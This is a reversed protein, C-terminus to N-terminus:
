ASPFGRAIKKGASWAMQITSISALFFEGGLWEGDNELIKKMEAEGALASKSSPYPKEGDLDNSHLAAWSFIGAPLAANLTDRRSLPSVSFGIKVIYKGGAPRGLFAEPDGNLRLIYNQKPGEAERTFHGTQSVPGPKSTRLLLAGEVPSAADIPIEGFVSTEVLVLDLLRKAENATLRMGLSGIAQARGTSYTEDAFEDVSVYSEPTVHWARTAKVALDWKGKTEADNEKKIWAVPDMYSKAFNVRHSVQQIGIIQGQQEKPAKSKHGYIVVLAGPKTERVFHDRQGSNSFGLFGWRSPDFGYFSTLWVNTPVGEIAEIPTMM